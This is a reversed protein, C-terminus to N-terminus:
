DLGRVTRLSAIALLGIVAACIGSYVIVPRPDWLQLGLGAHLNGLPVAGMVCLSYISMVRGLYRPDGYTQLFTSAYNIFLAASLGWVVFAAAALGITPALGGLVFATGGLPLAALFWRGRRQRPGIRALLVSGTLTGLGM